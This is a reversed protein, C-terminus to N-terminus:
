VYRIVICTKKQSVEKGNNKCDNKWKGHLRYFFLEGIKVDSFKIRIEKIEM